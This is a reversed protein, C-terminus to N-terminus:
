GGKKNTIEDFQPKSIESVRSVLLKWFVLFIDLKVSQKKCLKISPEYFSILFWM